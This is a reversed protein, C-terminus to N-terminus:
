GRLYDLLEPSNRLETLTKTIARYLKNNTASQLFTEGAANTIPKKTVYHYKNFFESIYDANIANLHSVLRRADFADTMNKNTRMVDYNAIGDIILAEVIENNKVFHGILESVPSTIPEDYEFADNDAFIFDGVDDLMGELSANNVEGKRKLKNSYQYQLGRISSLCTNIARDVANDDNQYWMPNPIREGNKDLIYEVFEGNKYKAKFEDRWVRYYFAVWLGHYLWSVIDDQTARLNQADASWKYTKSWYAVMLAAIYRSKIESYRQAAAKDGNRLAELEKDENDCYSNALDTKSIEWYRGLKSAETKYIALLENNTM